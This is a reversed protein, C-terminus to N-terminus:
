TTSLKGIFIDTTTGADFLNPGFQGTGIFQGVIYVNGIPDIDINSAYPM